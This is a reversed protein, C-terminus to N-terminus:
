DDERDECDEVIETHVYPIDWSFWEQEVTSMTIGEAVFRLGARGGRITAGPALCATFEPTEYLIVGDRYYAPSFSFVMYDDSLNTLRMNLVANPDSSFFRERQWRYEVKVEEITDHVQYEVQASAPKIAMILFFGAALFHFLVARM